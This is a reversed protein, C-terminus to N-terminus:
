PPHKRHTQRSIVPAYNMPIPSHHLDILVRSHQFAKQDEKLLDSITPLGQWQHKPGSLTSTFPALTARQCGLLSGTIWREDTSIWPKVVVFFVLLVHTAIM